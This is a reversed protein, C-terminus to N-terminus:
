LNFCNECVFIGQEKEKLSKDYNGCLECLGESEHKIIPKREEERLKFTEEM